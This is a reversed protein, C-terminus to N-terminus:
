LSPPEIADKTVLGKTPIGPPLGPGTITQGKAERAACAQNLDLLFALPDKRAGMGYAARVAADLSAHADKLPHKGPDEMSAYMARLSLKDRRALERRLKRLEVAAKAVAAVQKADPTQPWPFSDFVTNSTYRWDRKLTSCRANFWAWHIGSQLVGFSYDDELPFVMVVDSPRIASSVFEFIPRKTLRSCAIYRNIDRLKTILDRRPYSLLWWRRLFNEHHKNGRKELGENHAKERAAADERDPLVLEKVRRFPLQYRRAELQDRPHFDIVWRSPQGTGTLLDDGILYPFIVERNAQSAAIAARADDPSLLFGEHGHTQGQYCAEGEANARLGKAGTVDLSSSLSSPIRDLMVEKWPSNRDDGEQWSLKKLGEAEGKRWNVVSVHVVAEGPWVMTSVAETITGGNKVIYDLGGERSYNQRVTNTGVLGATTGVKLEDHARRFWYVCYDARGPVDPYRNRVRRVYEAGFERQMKNKSQFPPNGIILDATPWECFLADNCQINDDLNDLPLPQDIDLGLEAQAVDLAHHAEDLALKKGLMLTVKALEVAFADKDIGFFQRTQISTTSGVKLRTEASFREHVKELLELELRKLERYAVYLFNGSGCAPDLIRLKTLADRLPLLEKLTAAERIRARWPQILSPRVVHEFIAAEPTYHAGREHREDENMTAQFLTGFIAPHIRAWNEDTAQVLLELEIPTLEIPDITSFLGGNFYRVNRFRGGRAPKDTNMQRFLGGLLDYTSQGKQCDHVLETFLGRPLLDTDEAFMAVVCQLTFRQARERTEGRDVMARFVEGLKRATADSVERRNNDFLPKKPQPLLFNLAPWRSPLEVLKLRDMPEDLQQDFEYIWIDDFNCLVVYQPKNPVLRQWYEYVQNYIRPSGLREGRKKMEILVHKGWRLDAFKTRGDALKVREELTAGAEKYGAHGFARFLRDCFVQAEGKEDGKLTHAYAVFAAM